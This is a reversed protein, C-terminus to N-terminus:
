RFIVNFEDDLLYYVDNNLVNKSNGEDDTITYKEYIHAEYLIKYTKTDLPIYRYKELSNKYMLFEEDQAALDLYFMRKEPEIRYFDEIELGSLRRAAGLYIGKIAM